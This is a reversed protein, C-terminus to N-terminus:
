SAQPFCTVVRTINVWKLLWFAKLAKCIEPQQYCKKDHSIFNEISNALLQQQGFCLWPKVRDKLWDKTESYSYSIPVFCCTGFRIMQLAASRFQSGPHRSLNLNFLVAVESRCLAFAQFSHRVHIQISQLWLKCGFWNCIFHSTQLGHLRPRSLVLKLKWNSSNKLLRGKYVIM